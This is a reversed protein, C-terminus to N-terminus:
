VYVEDRGSANSGHALWTGDPSRSPVARGGRQQHPTGVQRRQGVDAGLRRLMVREDGSTFTTGYETYLLAGEGPLLFPTARRADPKTLAQPAGGDPPVEFVQYRTTFIVRTPGWTLGSVEIAACIRASPGGSVRIKRLESGTWFVLSEGDPSYALARAGQTGDLLTWRRTRAQEPSMYAATGPIVGRQTM